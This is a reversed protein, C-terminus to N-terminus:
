AVCVATIAAMPPSQGTPMPCNETAEGPRGAPQQAQERLRGALLRMAERVEAMSEGWGQSMSWARYTAEGQRRGLLEGTRKDVRDTNWPVGVREDVGKTVYKTVYHAAQRSGPDLVKLDVEHGFGARLAITRLEKVSIPLSSRILIHFHLAGRKQPEVARFFQPRETTVREWEILLRNWRKGATPNWEALDVGEPPTCACIRSGAGPVRHATAGPATITAFYLFGKSANAM